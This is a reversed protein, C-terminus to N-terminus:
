PISEMVFLLFVLALLAVILYAQVPGRHLRRLREVAALVARSVPRHAWPEVFQPSADEYQGKAPAFPVIPADQLRLDSQPRLIEAFLVRFPMVLGHPTYSQRTTPPPAGCNWPNVPQPRPRLVHTAGFLVVSALVSVALIPGVAVDGAATPVNWPSASPLLRSWLLGPALGIGLVGVLLLAPAFLGGSLSKRPVESRDPGLFTGFIAKGLAAVGAGAGIALLFMAGLLVVGDFPSSASLAGFFSALLGIEASVGSTPPLGALGLAGFGALIALGGAQRSLGGLRELDLEGTAHHVEGAILFLTAKSWGHSLAYVVAAAFVPERLGSSVPMRLGLAVLAALAGMHAVTTLALLRKLNRAHLAHLSGLTATLAGALIVITSLSAEITATSFLRLLLYTPLAVMVGSMLASVHSPAEPHAEPLWSHFPMVGSKTLCGLWLLFAAAAPVPRLALADLSSGLGDAWVILGGLIMTVAAHSYALYLLGARRTTPRHDLVLLIGPASSMLEWGILLTFVNDALLVLSMGVLFALVLAQDQVPGHERRGAIAAALGASGLLLLFAAQLAGHASVSLVLASDIDPTRVDYSYGAFVLLGALGVGVSYIASLAAVPQPYPRM